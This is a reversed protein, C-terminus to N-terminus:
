HRLGNEMSKAPARVLMTQERAQAAAYLLGAAHHVHRAIHGLEITAM